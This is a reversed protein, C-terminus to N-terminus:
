AVGTKHLLIAERQWTIIVVAVSFIYNTVCAVTSHENELEEPTNFVLLAVHLVSNVSIKFKSTKSEFFNALDIIVRLLWRKGSFNIFYNLFPLNSFLFIFKFKM